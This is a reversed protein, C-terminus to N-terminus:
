AKEWPALLADWSAAKREFEGACREARALPLLREQVIWAHGGPDSGYVTCLISYFRQQNLSHEDAFESTSVEGDDILLWFVAADVAADAAGADILLLTALDDVADEERGTIPIQLADVLAHGVEHFLIFLWTSGAARANEEPTFSPDEMIRGILDLLEWCLVVEGETPSYYANQMGCEAHRVPVDRPVALQANLRAVWAELDGEDRLADGYAAYRADADAPWALRVDGADRPHARTAAPADPPEPVDVTGGGGASEMPFEVVVCGAAALLMAPVLLAPLRM